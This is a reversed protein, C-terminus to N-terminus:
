PAPSEDDEADAESDEPEAIAMRTAADLAVTSAVSALTIKPKRSGSHSSIPTAARAQTFLIDGMIKGAAEILATRECTAALVLAIERLHVRGYCVLAAHARQQETMTSIFETFVHQQTLYLREILGESIDEPSHPSLASMIFSDDVPVAGSAEM